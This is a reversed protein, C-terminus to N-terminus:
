SGRSSSTKTKAPQLAAPLSSYSAPNVTGKVPFKALFEKQTGPWKDLAQQYVTPDVYGDSGRPNGLKNGNADKGTKLADSIEKEAAKLQAASSVTKSKATSKPIIGLKAAQGHTTGYPVGLAKAESPSLLKEADGATKADIKDQAAKQAVLATSLSMLPINFKQSIAVLFSEQDAPDLENLTKYIDPAIVKATADGKKVAADNQETLADQYNKLATTKETQINKLYTMKDNLTKLDGNERATEADSLAKVEENNLTSLKAQHESEAQNVSGMFLDPTVLARNTQIGLTQLGSKYNNYQTDVAAKQTNKIALINAVLAKSSANSTAAITNLQKIYPDSETGSTTDNLIAPKEVKLANTDVTGGSAGGGPSYDGNNPTTPTYSTNYKALAADLAASNTAAEDHVDGTSVIASGKNFKNDYVAQTKPGFIGDPKLNNATQFAVVSATTKPGYNNDVTLGGLNTQIASTPTTTINSGQM